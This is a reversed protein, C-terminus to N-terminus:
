SPAIGVKATGGGPFPGTVSPGDLYEVCFAWSGEKGAECGQRTVRVVRHSRVFPNLPAAVEPSADAPVQFFAFAM